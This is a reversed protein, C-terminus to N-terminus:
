RKACRIASRTACWGTPAAPAAATTASGARQAQQVLAQARDRTLLGQDVLAQILALTTARLEELGARADAAAPAAASPPESAPPPDTQAMAPLSAAACTVAALLTRPFSVPM